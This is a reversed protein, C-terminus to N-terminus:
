KLNIEKIEHGSLFLKEVFIVKGNVEVKIKAVGEEVFVAKGDKKMFDGVKGVKVENVYIDAKKNGNVFTISPRAEETKSISTPMYICAASFFLFALIFFKNM